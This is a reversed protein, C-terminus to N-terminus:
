WYLSGPSNTTVSSTSPGLPFARRTLTFWTITFHPIRIVAAPEPRTGTLQCLALPGVLKIQPTPIKTTDKRSSSDALLDAM